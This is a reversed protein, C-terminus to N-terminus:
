SKGYQAKADKICLDKPDGALADCKEKAVAYAADRKDEAADKRAVAIKKDAQAGAKESKVIADKNADATKMQAKADASAATHASAAEKMCVDKDNGARDDCKERAVSQIADAKAIRVEYRAKESPENTARLQALAVKEKGKAEAMCIDKANAALSDCAAKASKYDASIASKAAKYDAKSMTANALAGTGFALGIAAALITLTSRKM